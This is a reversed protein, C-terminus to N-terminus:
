RLVLLDLHDVVPTPTTEAAAARELAALGQTFEEDGLAQLTSDARLRVRELSARLSPATVQPVQQLAQFAFGAAQFADVTSELTPFTEAVRGAGPFFRFLTIGAHRGPFSSRILVPGGPALVRRLERACRPLDDFHHIVTSLWAAGCSRDRLPLLEATGGVFRVRPDPRAQRAQRRMERSPEVAVVWADFWRVIAAAFPGTGAGLDLVPLGRLPSLHAALAARWGELGDLSLARGRDYSAAMRDYDVRAMAVSRVGGPM